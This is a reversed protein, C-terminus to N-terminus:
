AVTTRSRWATGFSTRGNTRLLSGEYLRAGVALLAVPPGGHWRVEGYDAALVGLIIRMTTTKGAGNAGVFGTMRGAAVQFSVDQLVRRDGFSRSVAEVNLVNTM